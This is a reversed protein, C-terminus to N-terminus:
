LYAPAAQATFTFGPNSTGTEGGLAAIQFTGTAGAPVSFWDRQTLYVTRDQGQTTATGAGCDIVLDSGVPFSYTLHQGTEVWTIQFGQSLAGSIAFVPETAATGTNTFVVSGGSGVTGFDMPSGIPFALGTGATRLTTRSTLAPGYKRHDPAKFMWQWRVLGAGLASADMQPTGTLRCRVSRTGLDPDLVTFTGLNSGMLGSLRDAAAAVSSRSAGRVQGTLTIVRATRLPPADFSGDAAARDVMRDRLPAPDWWGSLSQYTWNLGALNVGVILGDIHIPSSQLPTGSDPAIIM